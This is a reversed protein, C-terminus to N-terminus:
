AYTVGSANPGSASGSVAVSTGVTTESPTVSVANVTACDFTTGTINASGVQAAGTSCQLPVSVNTTTRATVNFLASGTCSVSGSTSTGTLSIDYGTGPAINGVLFNIAASNQVNLTGSQVVTSAGNPGTITWSISNIQAGGPLTLKLGVSGTSEGSVPRPETSSPGGGPAQSCGVQAAAVTAAGMAGLVLANRLLTKRLITRM